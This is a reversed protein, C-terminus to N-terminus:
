VRYVRPEVLVQANLAFAQRDYWYFFYRGDVNLRGAAAKWVRQGAVTAVSQNPLTLTFTKLDASDKCITVVDAAAIPFNTFGYKFTMTVAAGPSTPTGGQGNTTKVEFVVTGENWNETDLELDIITPSQDTAAGVGSVQLQVDTALVSRVLTVKPPLRTASVTSSWNSM